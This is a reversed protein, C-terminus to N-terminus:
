VYASYELRKMVPRLRDEIFAAESSALHDSWDKTKEVIPGFLHPDPAWRTLDPRPEELATAVYDEGLFRCVAAFSMEPASTLSEYRVLHVRHPDTASLALVAGITREYRRCFVDAAINAWSASPDLAYRRRYSSLVDVPHRHVFLLKCHPFAYILQAMHPVNRPSKEVLRNAGRAKGAIFFYARLVQPALSWCWVPNSSNQWAINVPSLVALRSRAVDIANLFSGYAVDDELM